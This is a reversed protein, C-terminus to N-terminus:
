VSGKWKPSVKLARMPTSDTLLAAIDPYQRRLADQNIRNSTFGYHTFATKGDVTLVAHQRMYAGVQLKLAEERAELKRKDIGLRRLENAAKATDEDAEVTRGDDEPWLARVDPFRLPDPRIGTMVHENWFVACVKRMAAIAVDNREVRYVRVDDLGLLAFVYCRPRATIGLGWLFQGGYHPPVEDTDQVGWESRQLRAGTKADLNCLAGDVFMAGDIECSFAGFHEDVYRCNRQVLKVDHGLERLKDVGMDVVHPELKKGRKMARVRAPDVKRVRQRTKELWVDVPTAWPSIGLVAPADTGGIFTERKPARRGIPAPCTEPLYLESM